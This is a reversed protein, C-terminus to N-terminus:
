SEQKIDAIAYILARPPHQDLELKVKLKMNTCPSERRGSYVTSMIALHERARMQEYENLDDYNEVHVPITDGKMFTLLGEAYGVMFGLKNASEIPDANLNMEMQENTTDRGPVEKRICLVPHTM